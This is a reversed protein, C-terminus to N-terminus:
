SVLNVLYLILKMQQKPVLIISFFLDTTVKKVRSDVTVSRWWGGKNLYGGVQEEEKKVRCISFFFLGFKEKWRRDTGGGGTYCKPQTFCGSSTFGLLSHSTWIALHGEGPVCSRGESRMPADRVRALSLLCGCQEKCRGVSAQWPLVPQDRWQPNGSSDRGIWSWCSDKEMM